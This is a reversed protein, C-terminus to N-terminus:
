QEEMIEWDDEDGFVDWQSGSWPRLPEAPNSGAIVLVPMFTRGDPLPPPQVIEAWPDPTGYIGGAWIARRIKRGAMAATRADSFNV